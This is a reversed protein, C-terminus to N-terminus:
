GRRAAGLRRRARCCHDGRRRERRQRGALAPQCSSSLRHAGAAPQQEVARRWSVCRLTRRASRRRGWSSGCAPSSTRRCAPRPSSRCTPARPSCAPRPAASRVLAAISATASAQLPAALLMRVRSHRCPAPLLPEGALRVSQCRLRRVRAGVETQGLLARSTEAQGRLESIKAEQLLM